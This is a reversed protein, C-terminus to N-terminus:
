VQIIIIAPENIFYILIFYYLCFCYKVFIKNNFCSLLMGCVAFIAFQPPFWQAVSVVSELEARVFFVVTILFYQWAQDLASRERTRLYVSFAEMGSRVNGICM